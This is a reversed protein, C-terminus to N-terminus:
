CQTSKGLKDIGASPGNALPARRRHRRYSACLMCLLLFDFYVIETKLVAFM